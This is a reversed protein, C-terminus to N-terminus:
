SIIQNPFDNKLSEINNFNDFKGKRRVLFIIVLIIVVFFIIPLVIWIVYSSDGSNKEKVVGGKDIPIEDTIEEDTKSSDTESSDTKDDKEDSKDEDMSDVYQYTFYCEKGRSKASIFWNYHTKEEFAYPNPIYTVNELIIDLLQCDECLYNTSNTQSFELLVYFGDESSKIKIYKKTVKPNLQFYVRYSARNECKVKEKEKAIPNKNFGFNFNSYVMSKDGTLERFSIERAWKQTFNYYIHTNFEKGTYNKGGINTLDYSINGGIFAEVYIYPSEKGFDMTFSSPYKLITQSKGIIPGGLSWKTENTFYVTLLGPKTCQFKIINIDFSPLNFLQEFPLNEFDENFGITETKKIEASFEGFHVRSYYTYNSEKTVDNSVFFFTPRQCDDILFNYNFTEKETFFRFNADLKLIQIYHIYSYSGRKYPYGMQVSDGITFNQAYIRTQYGYNILDQNIIIDKNRNGIIELINAKANPFVIVYIGNDIATFNLYYHNYKTIDIELKKEELTINYTYTTYESLSFALILNFLILKINTKKKDM